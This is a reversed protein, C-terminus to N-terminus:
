DLLLTILVPYLQDDGNHINVKFFDRMETDCDEHLTLHTLNFMQIDIPDGILKGNM